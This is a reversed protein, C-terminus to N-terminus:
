TCTNRSFIDSVAMIYMKEISSVFSVFDQSHSRMELCAVLFQETRSM